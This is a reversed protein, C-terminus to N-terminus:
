GRKREENIRSWAEAFLAPMDLAYPCKNVCEYCQQCDKYSKPLSNIREWAWDKLDYNFYYFRLLHLFSIPLGNPCPMCYECRRCFNDGLMEKDKLLRDYEESTLPAPNDLASFNETVQRVSDMGPIAVHIGSALVYRLSLPVDKMNGGAAPKMGIIGINRQLALPILDAASTTEVINYPIQLATFDFQELAKIAIWPKHASIGIHRIKGQQQATQFAELAGAPALIQELDNESSINHCIYLDIYDTQLTKLSLELDKIVGDGTRAYTKTAIVVDKRHKSLIRGYKAESDTYIRATDFFNIGVEIAKELVLDAEPVTLRQIPIGGMGIRKVVLKTKGLVIDKHTMDNRKKLFTIIYNEKEGTL